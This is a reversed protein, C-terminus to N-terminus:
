LRDLAALVSAPDLREFLATLEELTAAATERVESPYAFKEANSEFEDVDITILRGDPWVILDIDLDVYDITRRELKPPMCINIYYNRLQDAPQEFIFYNYWRNLYFRERSITGKEIQGLDSHDVTKAFVGVLDIAFENANVLTCEWSRQVRGDFKRSNITVLEGPVLSSM